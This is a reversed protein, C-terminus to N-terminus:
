DHRFTCLEMLFSRGLTEDTSGHDIGLLNAQFSLKASAFHQNRLMKSVVYTIPGDSFLQSKETKVLAVGLLALVSGTHCLDLKPAAVSCLMWKMCCTCGFTLMGWGVGGEVGNGSMADVEHLLHLRVNVHGVGGWGGGWEWM